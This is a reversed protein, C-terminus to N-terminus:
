ITFVQFPNSMTRKAYEICTMSDIFLLQDKIDDITTVCDQSDGEDDVGLIIANGVLPVSWNGMIFGGKIDNLRLLSEDDAYMADGNPFQVPCCFTTCNNGIAEYFADLGDPLQIYEITKTESNIKIAKKM